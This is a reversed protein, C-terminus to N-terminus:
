KKDKRLVGDTMTVGCNCNGSIGKCDKDFFLCRECNIPDTQCKNLEKGCRSCYHANFIAGKRKYQYGHLYAGCYPCKNRHNDKWMGILDQILIFLAGIVAGIICFIFIVGLTELQNM